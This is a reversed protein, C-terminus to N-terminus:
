EVGYLQSLASPPASPGKKLFRLKVPSGLEITAAAIGGLDTLIAEQQKRNVPWSYHIRDLGFKDAIAEAAGFIESVDIVNRKDIIRKLGAYGSFDELMKASFAPNRAEASRAILITRIAWILRKRFKARKSYKKNLLLYHLVSQAIEIDNEYTTRFEFSNKINEFSNLTDHLCKGEEVLHLTFLDGSLAGELINRYPYTYFSAGRTSIEPTISGTETIGLLDVDSSLRHDGRARSGYMILSLLM